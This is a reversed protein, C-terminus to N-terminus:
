KENRDGKHKNLINLLCIMDLEVEDGQWYNKYEKIWNIAEEIVEDRQQIISLQKLQTDKLTNIREKLQQNEQQSKCWLESLKSSEELEDIFKNIMQAKSYKLLCEQELQLKEEKSM